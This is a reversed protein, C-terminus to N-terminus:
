SQDSVFSLTLGNSEQTSTLKLSKEEALYLVHFLIIGSKFKLDDGLLSGRDFHTYPMHLIPGHCELIGREFDLTIAGGRPLAECAVVGLGLMLRALESADEGVATCTVNKSGLYAKLLKTVRRAELSQSSTSFLQRFVDIRTTASDISQMLLPTIEASLDDHKEMLGGSATPSQPADFLNELGLRIAGVPTALDHCIKQTIYQLLVPYPIHMPLPDKSM